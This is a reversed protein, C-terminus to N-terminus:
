FRIFIGFPIECVQYIQGYSRYEPCISYRAELSFGMHLKDNNVLTFDCNSGVSFVYLSQPHFLALGNQVELGLEIRPSIIKTLGLSVTAQNGWQITRLDIGSSIRIDNLSYIYNASLEFGGNFAAWHNHKVGQAYKISLEVDQAKLQGAGILLLALLCLRLFNNARNTKM